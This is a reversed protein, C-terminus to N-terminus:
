GLRVELGIGENNSTDTTDDQDRNRKADVGLLHQRGGQFKLPHRCACLGRMFSRSTVSAMEDSVLAM